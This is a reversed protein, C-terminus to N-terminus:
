DLFFPNKLLSLDFNKSNINIKKNLYENVVQENFDVKKTYRIEKKKDQILPEIEFLSKDKIREKLSHFASKVTSMTYDFPNDYKKKPCRTIYFQGM